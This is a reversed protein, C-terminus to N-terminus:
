PERSEHKKITDAIANNLTKLDELNNFRVGAVVDAKLSNDDQTRGQFFLLSPVGQDSVIVAHGDMAVIPVLYNLQINSQDM